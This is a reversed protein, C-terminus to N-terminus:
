AAVCEACCADVTGELRLRGARDVALRDVLVMVVISEGQDYLVLQVAELDSAWVPTAVVLARPLMEFAVALAAALEGRDAARRGGAALENSAPVGRRLLSAHMRVRSALEAILDHRKHLEVRM